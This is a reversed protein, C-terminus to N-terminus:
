AARATPPIATPGETARAPHDLPDGASFARPPRMSGVEFHATRPRGSVARATWVPGDLFFDAVGRPTTAMVLIERIITSHLRNSPLGAVPRSPGALIPGFGYYGLLLFEM